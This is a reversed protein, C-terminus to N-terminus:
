RELHHSNSTTWPLKQYTNFPGRRTVTTLKHLLVGYCINTMTGCADQTFMGLGGALPTYVTGQLKLSIHCMLFFYLKRQPAFLNVTYYIVGTYSSDQLGKHLKFFKRNPSAGDAIAVVCWANVKLELVSVVKWFLTFIQFSTTAGSICFYCLIFKLSTMLGRVLFAIITTAVPLENNFSIFTLEPDSLDTFGVIEGTNKEFVLCSKIKM